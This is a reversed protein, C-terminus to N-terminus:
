RPHVITIEVLRPEFGITGQTTHVSPQSVTVYRTRVTLQARATLHGLGIAVVRGHAAESAGRGDAGSGAGHHRSWSIMRLRRHKRSTLVALCVVKYVRCELWWTSEFLIQM